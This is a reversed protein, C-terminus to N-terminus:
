PSTVELTTPGTLPGAFVLPCDEEQNLEQSDSVCILARYEGFPRAEEDRYPAGLLCQPGDAIIELRWSPELIAPEGAGTRFRIMVRGGPGGLSAYTATTSEALCLREEDLVLPAEGLAGYVDDHGDLQLVEGYARASSDASRAIVAGIRLPLPDVPQTEVSASRNQSNADDSDDEGGEEGDDDDPEDEPAPEPSLQELILLQYPAANTQNQDSNEGSHGGNYNQEALGNDDDGPRLCRQHIGCYADPDGLLDRCIQDEQCEFDSSEVPDESAICVQIPSAEGTRQYAECSTGRRCEDDGTCTMVCSSAVCLREGLCDSDYVCSLFSFDEDCGSLLMLSICLFLPLLLNFLQRMMLLGQLAALQLLFLPTNMRWLQSFLWATREGM